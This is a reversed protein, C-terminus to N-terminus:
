VACAAPRLAGLAPSGNPADIQILSQSQAAHDRSLLRWKSTVCILMTQDHTIEEALSASSRHVPIRGRAPQSRRTAIISRSPMSEDAGAIGRDIRVQRESEGLGLRQDLLM